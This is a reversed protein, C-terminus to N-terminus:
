DLCWSSDWYDWVIKIGKRHALRQWATWKKPLNVWHDPSIRSNIGMSSAMLGLVSVRCWGLYKHSGQRQRTNILIASHRYTKVGHMAHLPHHTRSVKAWNFEWEVDWSSFHTLLYTEWISHTQLPTAIVRCTYALLQNGHCFNAYHM